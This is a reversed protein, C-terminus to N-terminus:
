TSDEETSFEETTMSDSDEEDEEEEEEPDYIAIREKYNRNWKCFHCKTGNVDKNEATCVSCFWSKVPQLRDFETGVESNTDMMLVTVAPPHTEFHIKKIQCLRGKRSAFDGATYGQYSKINQKTNLSSM